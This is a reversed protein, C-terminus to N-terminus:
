WSREGPAITRMTHPGSRGAVDRRGPQHLGRGLEGLLVVHLHRRVERLEGALLRPRERLEPHLRDVPELADAPRRRARPDRVADEDVVALDGPERSHPVPTACQGLVQQRIVSPAGGTAVIRAAPTFTPRATSPAPESCADIHSSACVASRSPRSRSRASSSSRARRAPSPSARSPASGRGRSGCRSGRARARAAVEDGPRELPDAERAGPRVRDLRPQAAPRDRRPVRDDGALGTTRSLASATGPRSSISFRWAAIERSHCSAAASIRTQTVTSPCSSM